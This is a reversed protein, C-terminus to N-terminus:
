PDVVLDNDVQSVPIEQLETPQQCCVCPGPELAALHCTNCYYRVKYLKGERVTFLHVVKFSGDQALAGELRVERHALRPDGLTHLLFSQAAALPYQKGDANLVPCSGGKDEIEGTLTTL